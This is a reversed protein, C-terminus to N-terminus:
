RPNVALLSRLRQAAARGLALESGPADFVVVAGLASFNARQILKWQVICGRDLPVFLETPLRAIWSAMTHRIIVRRGDRLQVVSRKGQATVHLLDQVPVFCGSNGLPLLVRDEDRLKPLAVSTSAPAATDLHQRLRQIAVTLRAPEVPKLLYDLANVEFARLAHRDYATVFVVFPLNPALADLLQFGDGGPMQIDLFLVDPRQSRVSEAAETIDAAEAVIQFDPHAALLDRLVLRALREDDVILCRIPNM